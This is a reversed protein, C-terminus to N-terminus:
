SPLKNFNKPWNLEYMETFTYSWEKIPRMFNIPLEMIDPPRRCLILRDFDVSAVTRGLPTQAETPDPSPNPDPPVERFWPALGLRPISEPPVLFMKRVFTQTPSQPGKEAWAWALIALAASQEETLATPPDTSWDLPLPEQEDWQLTPVITPPLWLERQPVRAAEAEDRPLLDLVGRLATLAPHLASLAVQVGDPVELPPTSALDKPHNALWKFARVAHPPVDHHHDEHLLRARLTTRTDDDTAAGAFGQLLTKYTGGWIRRPTADPYAQWLSYAVEPAAIMPAVVNGKLTGCCRRHSVKGLNYDQVPVIREHGTKSCRIHLWKCPTLPLTVQLQEALRLADVRKLPAGLVIWEGWDHARKPTGQPHTQPPTESVGPPIGHLSLDKSM